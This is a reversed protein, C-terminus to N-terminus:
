LCMVYTIYQVLEAAIMQKFSHIMLILIDLVLLKCVNNM